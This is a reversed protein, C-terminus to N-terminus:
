QRLVYWLSAAGLIALLLAVTITLPWRSLVPADDLRLGGLAFWHAIGSLVTAVLGRM